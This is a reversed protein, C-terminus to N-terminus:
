GYKEMRHDHVWQHVTADDPAPKETRFTRIVEEATRGRPVPPAASRKPPLTALIERVLAFRDDVSWDKVLALVTLLGENDVASM